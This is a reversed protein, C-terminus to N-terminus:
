ATVDGADLVRLEVGDPGDCAVVLYDPGANAHLVRLGADRWAQTPAVDVWAGTEGDHRKLAEDMVAFIKGALVTVRAPDEADRWIMEEPAIITTPASLDGADCRFATVRITDSMGEPGPECRSEILLTAADSDIEAERPPYVVGEFSEIVTQPEAEEAGLAHLAFIRDTGETRVVALKGQWFGADEVGRADIRRVLSMAPGQVRYLMVQNPLTIAVWDEFAAGTYADVPQLPIWRQGVAKFILARHDDGYVVPMVVLVKDTASLQYHFSIPVRRVVPAAGLDTRRYVHLYAPPFDNEWERSIVFISSINAAVHRGFIKELGPPASIRQEVV